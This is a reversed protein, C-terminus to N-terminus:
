NALWQRDRMFDGTRVSQLGIQRKDEGRPEYVLAASLCCNSTLPTPAFVLCYSLLLWDQTRATLCQLDNFRHMGPYCCRDRVTHDSGSNSSKSACTFRDYPNAGSCAVRCCSRSRSHPSQHRAVTVTVIYTLATTSITSGVFVRSSLM